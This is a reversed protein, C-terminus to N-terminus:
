TCYIVSMSRNIRHLDVVISVDRVEDATHAHQMLEAFRFRLLKLVKEIAMPQARAAAECLSKPVAFGLKHFVKANMTNWNYM